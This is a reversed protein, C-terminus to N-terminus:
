LCEDNTYYKPRVLDYEKETRASMLTQERDSELCITIMSVGRLDITRLLKGEGSSVHIIQGEGLKIKM